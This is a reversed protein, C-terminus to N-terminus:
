PEYSVSLSRTVSVNLEEYAPMAAVDLEVLPFPCPLFQTMRECNRGKKMSKRSVKERPNGKAKVQTSSTPQQLNNPFVLDCLPIRYECSAPPRM